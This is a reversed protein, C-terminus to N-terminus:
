PIFTHPALNRKYHLINSRFEDPCTIFARAGHLHYGDCHSRAHDLESSYLSHESSLRHFLPEKSGRLPNLLDRPKLGAPWPGSPRCEKTNRLAAMFPREEVPRA